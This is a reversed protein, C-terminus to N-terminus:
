TSKKRRRIAFFGGMKFREPMEVSTDALSVAYIPGRGERWRFFPYPGYSVTEYVLPAMREPIEQRAQIVAALEPDIERELEAPVPTGDERQKNLAIIYQVVIPRVRERRVYQIDIWGNGQGLAAQIERLRDKVQTIQEDLHRPSGTLQERDIEARAVPGPGAQLLEVLRPILPDPALLEQALRLASEAAQLRALARKRRFILLTARIHDVHKRDSYHERLFAALAEDEEALRTPVQQFEELAALLEPLQAATTLLQANLNRAEDLQVDLAHPDGQQFRLRGEGSEPIRRKIKRKRPQGPSSSSPGDAM